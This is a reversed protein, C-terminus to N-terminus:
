PKPNQAMAEAAALLVDLDRPSLGNIRRLLRPRVDQGDPREPFFVADVSLNLIQTLGYLIESSPKRRESELNRMHEVTIDLQEALAEQSLRMAKRAARIAPGLRVSTWDWGDM